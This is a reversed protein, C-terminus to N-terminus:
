RGDEGRDQRDGAALLGLPAVAPPSGPQQDSLDPPTAHGPGPPTPFTPDDGLLDCIKNIHTRMAEQLWRKERVDGLRPGPWTKDVFYLLVRRADASSMIQSHHALANVATAYAEASDTALAILCVRRTEDLEERTAATAEVARQREDHARRRVDKRHEALASIVQAAGAVTFAVAASLYVSHVSQDTPAHMALWIGPGVLALGGWTRPDAVSEVAWRRLQSVPEAQHRDNV